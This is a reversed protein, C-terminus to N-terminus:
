PPGPRSAPYPPPDPSLGRDHGAAAATIAGQVGRWSMVAADPPMGGELIEDGGVLRRGHTRLYEGLRHTFYGQLAAESPVGLERMRAQVRTSAQWQDKVAEDGGVHIYQGPFLEM